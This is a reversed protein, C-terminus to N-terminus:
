IGSRANWRLARPGTTPGGPRTKRLRAPAFRDKAFRGGPALPPRVKCSIDAGAKDLHELLEGAGYAADGYVVLPAEGDTSETVAQEIAAAADGTNGPTVTTATIVESDPDIAVHGKYGDFGRAAAPWCRIWSRVM